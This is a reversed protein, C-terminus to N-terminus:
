LDVCPFRTMTTSIPTKMSSASSIRLWDRRVHPNDRQEKSITAEQQVKQNLSLISEKEDIVVYQIEGTISETLM